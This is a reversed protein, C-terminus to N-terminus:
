WSLWSKKPEDVLGLDKDTIGLDKDSLGLSRDIAGLPDAEDRLRQDREKNYKRLKRSWRTGLPLQEVAGVALHRAKGTKTFDAIHQGLKTLTGFFAGFQPDGYKTSQILMEAMGLCGATSLSDVFLKLWEEDGDRLAKQLQSDRGTIQGRLENVVLGSGSVLLMYILPQFNGHMAEDLINKRISKTQAYMFTKFQTVLKGPISRRFEPLDIARSRFNTDVEFQRAAILKQHETPELKGERNVPIENIDLGLKKLARLYKPNSVNKNLKDIVFDTYHMGTVAAIARSAADMRVFGTKRLMFSSARALKSGGLSGMSDKMVQNRILTMNSGCRTVFSMAEKRNLLSLDAVAKGWARMNGRWIGALMQPVQGLSSTSMKSLVQTNMTANVIASSEPDNQSRGTVADAFRKARRFQQMAQSRSYKAGAEESLNLVMEYLKEDKPGFARAQEIRMASDELYELLVGADKRYAWEPLDLQRSIQLNGYRKETITADLFAEAMNRTMTGEAYDGSVQGTEILYDILKDRSKGKRLYKPDVVHPFYDERYQLETIMNANKFASAQSRTPFTEILNGEDWVEWGKSPEQRINWNQVRPHYESLGMEKAEAWTRNMLERVKGYANRVRTIEKGSLKSLAALDVQMEVPNDLFKCLLELQKNKHRSRLIPDISQVLEHKYEGGKLEGDRYMREAQDNIQIGADTQNLSKGFSTIYYREMYTRIDDTKIPGEPRVPSNNIISEGHEVFDKLFGIDGSKILDDMEVKYKEKLGTLRDSAEIARIKEYQVPDYTGNIPAPEEPVNRTQKWQRGASLTEGPVNSEPTYAQSMDKEAQARWDRAPPEGLGWHAEREAGIRSYNDTLFETQQEIPLAKFYSNDKLLEMINEPSQLVFDKRGPNEIFMDDLHRQADNYNEYDRVSEAYARQEIERDLAKEATEAKKKYHEMYEQTGEETQMKKKVSQFSDGTDESVKKFLSDNKYEIKAQRGHHRAKMLLDLLLFSAVDDIAPLEQDLVVRSTTVAGGAGLAELGLNSPISVAKAVPTSLKSMLTDNVKARAASSLKLAKDFIMGELVGKTAGGAVKLVTLADADKGSEVERNYEAMARSAGFGGLPGGLVFLPIDAILQGGGYGVKELFTQPEYDVRKRPMNYSKAELNALFNVTSSDTLGTLIANGFGRQNAKREALIEDPTRPDEIKFTNGFDIKPHVKVLPPKDRLEALLVRQPIGKSNIAIRNKLEREEKEKQAQIEEPTRTDPPGALLDAPRDFVEQGERMKDWISKGQESLSDAHENFQQWHYDAEDMADQEKLQPVVNQRFFSERKSQWQEPTLSANKPDNYVEAWKM